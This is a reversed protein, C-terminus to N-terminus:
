ASAQVQQITKKRNLKGNETESFSDLFVIEKPMEYKHLHAKLDKMLEKQDDEAMPQSEILLAVRQGLKEDPLGAFFFKTNLYPKALKEIVEPIIKVGGSNIMNDARGVWKFRGEDVLEIIDNTVLPSEPLVDSELVLCSRDDTSISIGDLV